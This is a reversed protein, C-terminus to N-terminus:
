GSVPSSLPRVLLDNDKVGDNVPEDMTVEPDSSGLVPVAEEMAGLKLPVERVLLLRTVVDKM